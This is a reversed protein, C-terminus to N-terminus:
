IIKRILEELKKNQSNADFEWCIKRVNKRMEAYHEEDQAATLIADYLSNADSPYYNVGLKNKEIYNKVEGTLSNIIVLGAACYDYFKDPMDVNSKSSYACLGIHCRGYIPILEEPLLSGLFVVNELTREAEIIKYEESGSGAFIFDIESASEQFKKACQLITDIDYSPGFTGAFICHIKGKARDFKKQIEPTLSNSLHKQFKDIDVGNYVLASPKSIGDTTVQRAFELYNSGLAIYGAAQEYNKRRNRYVPLLFFHAINKFKGCSNEIFEPWVDMQDVVVPIQKKKAYSFTPKSMTLPNEASIIVDPKDSELFLKRANRAFSFDKLIRGIGFNKKYSSTPVLRICFGDRVRIEKYGNSRYKKFHHAFNSTWWVVDYGNEALFKGFQNFSYDRWSEGEIPGYPNVLWVKKNKGGTNM